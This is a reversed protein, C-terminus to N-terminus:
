RFLQDVPSYQRHMKQLDSGWLNVYHRVMELTSHGLLAQLSFPDGGRMIYMKAFTHRFTHPSVRVGTLKAMKGYITLREQVTRQKMPKNDSTIFLHENGSIDGRTRLYKRLMEKTKTSIFVRRQKGGKGETILVEGDKMRIDMLKIGVLESVRVGTDLMFLIMTYDRFGVFRTKDAVSLLSTLQEENFAQIKVTKPKKRELKEAPNLSMYGEKVMFKYFQKISRVRHNVTTSSLGSNVMKLVVEKINSETILGPERELELSKLVKTLAVLNERYWRMTNYSLGKIKMNSIFLEVADDWSISKREENLEINITTRRKAM